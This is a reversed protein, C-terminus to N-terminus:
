QANGVYLCICFHFTWTSSCWLNKSCPHLKLGEENSSKYGDVMSELARSKHVVKDLLVGAIHAFIVATANSFFEHVEKFLKMDRFLTHNMFAFVGM